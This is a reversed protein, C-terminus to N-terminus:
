HFTEKFITYSLFQRCSGVSVKSSMGRSVRWWLDLTFGLNGTSHRSVSSRFFSSSVTRSCARNRSPWFSASPVRTSPADLISPKRVEAALGCVLSTTASSRAAGTRSLGRLPTALRYFPHRLLRLLWSPCSWCSRIKRLGNYLAYVHLSLFFFPDASCDHAGKHHLLGAGDAPSSPWSLGPSAAKVGPNNSALRPDDRRNVSIVRERGDAAWPKGALM